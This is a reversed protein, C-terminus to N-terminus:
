LGSDVVLCKVVDRIINTAGAKAEDVSPFTAQEERNLNLSYDPDSKWSKWEISFEGIPTQAVLHHYRIRVNPPWPGSWDLDRIKIHQTM